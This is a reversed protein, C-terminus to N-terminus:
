QLHKSAAKRVGVDPDDKLKNLITNTLNMDGMFTRNSTGKTIDAVANATAVRVEPYKSKSATDLVLISDPDEIISALHVAKSVLLPDPSSEVIKKIHPLAKPGFEQAAKKYNPEYRNLEELIDNITVM